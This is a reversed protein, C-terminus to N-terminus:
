QVRKSFDKIFAVYEKEEEKQSMSVQETAAGPIHLMQPMTSYVITEPKDSFHIRTEKSFSSYTVKKVNEATVTFPEGGIPRGRDISIPIVYFTDDDKRFVTVYSHLIIKRIKQEQYLSYVFQYSHGDPIAHNVFERLASKDKSDSKLFDFLGM